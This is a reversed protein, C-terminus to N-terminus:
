LLGKAESDLTEPAAALRVPTVWEDVTASPMSSAATASTVRTAARCNPFRWVRSSTSFVADPVECPADRSSCLLARTRMTSGTDLLFHDEIPEEPLDMSISAPAREVDADSLFPQHVLRAGGPSQDLQLNQVLASSIRLLSLSCLLLCSRRM